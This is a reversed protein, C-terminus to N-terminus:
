GQGAVKGHLGSLEHLKLTVTAAAIKMFVAEGWTSMCLNVSLCVMRVNDAEYGRSSDIRDISPRFPHRSSDGLHFEIGSVECRGGSRLAVNEIVKLSINGGLRKTRSKVNSAMVRLWGKPLLGRQVEAEWSSSVYRAAEDALIRRAREQALALNKTRLMIELRKGSPLNKRLQYGSPRLRLCPIQDTFHAAAM